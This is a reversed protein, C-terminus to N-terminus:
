LTRGQDDIDIVALKTLLDQADPDTAYSNAVEQLWQTQCLSLGDLAM